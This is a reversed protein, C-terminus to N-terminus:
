DNEPDDDSWQRALEQAQRIDREQSSKDGGALLLLLENGQRSVYVRYGPGFAFRLETVQGGVPKCDGVLESAREIRRIRM